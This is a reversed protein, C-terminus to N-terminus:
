PAPRTRSRPLSIVELRVRAVDGLMGLKRAAAASLDIVRGKSYPGRDNVRVIIPGAVAQGRKDIRTVRVMTHMPLTRHAATMAEPKYLDGSATKRGAFRQHYHSAIGVEGEPAPAPPRETTTDRCGGCGDLLAPVLVVTALVAALRWRVWFWPRTRTTGDSAQNGPSSV